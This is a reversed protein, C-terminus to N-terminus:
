PSYNSSDKTPRKWTIGGNSFCEKGFSSSYRNYAYKPGTILVPVLQCCRGLCSSHDIFGIRWGGSWDLCDEEESWSLDFVHDADRNILCGPHCYEQDLFLHISIAPIRDNDDLPIRAHHASSRGVLLSFFISDSWCRRQCCEHYGCFRSSAHTIVAIDMPDSSQIALNRQCNGM